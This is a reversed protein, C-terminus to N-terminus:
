RSMPSPRRGAARGSSPSASWAAPQRGPRLAAGELAPLPIRLGRSVMKMRRFQETEVTVRAGIADRNSQTGVLGCRSRRVAGRSTTGSCASSPRPAPPWCSSTRTATAISTWCPSPGGTRTSTSGSRARSTTSGVGATTACSCTRAPPRRDLARGHVPQHGALRRRLPHRHGPDASIAGRGRGLVDLGPGGPQVRADGHRQRRLPGGVRRRRLGSCRDVLVLPGHQGSGDPSVDEFTGDGRNRFLSNGRAHHRYLARVEAPAEPMFAASATVRLGNDSWMQGGYIDPRGDGDYDFWLVSMGAAHDEVGARAAVDEFTM